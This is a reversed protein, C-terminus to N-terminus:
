YRVMRMVVPNSTKAMLGNPQKYLGAHIVGSNHGSQHTALASEKELICLRLRPEKELLKLGSALGVIGGGVIVCDYIGHSSM